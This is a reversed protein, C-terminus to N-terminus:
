HVRNIYYDYTINIDSRIIEGSGTGERLPRSLFEVEINGYAEPDDSQIDSIANYMADTLAGTSKFLTRNPYVVAGIDDNKSRDLVIAYIILSISETKTNTQNSPHPRVSGTRYFIAPTRDVSASLEVPSVVSEAILNVSSPYLSRRDVYDSLDDTTLVKNSDVGFVTKLWSPRPNPLTNNNEVANEFQFIRDLWADAKAEEDTQTPASIYKHYITYLTHNLNLEGDSRVPKLKEIEGTFLRYVKSRSTNM